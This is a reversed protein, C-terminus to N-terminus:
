VLSSANLWIVLKVSFPSIMSAVISEVLSRFLFESKGGGRAGTWVGVCLLVGSPFVFSLSITGNLSLATRFLTYNVFENLNYVKNQKLITYM